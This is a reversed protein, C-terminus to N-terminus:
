KTASCEYVSVRKLKIPTVPKEGDVDMANLRDVVDMGDVVRAFAAFTGDLFTSDSVLIFFHSTASNPQEPRALSVIGRLHSVRNPEDPVRRAARRRLDPSADDRTSINGGQVVFSKVIRSFSTTDFAGLAALNLFNRVTIPAEEPFFEFRIDGIETELRACTTAMKSVTAEDFPEITLLPEVAIPRQNVKKPESTEQAFVTVISSVMLLAFVLHFFAKQNLSM